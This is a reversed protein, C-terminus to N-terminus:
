TVMRVYMTRVQSFFNVWTYIYSGFNGCFETKTRTLKFDNKTFGVLPAGGGEERRVGVRLFTNTM